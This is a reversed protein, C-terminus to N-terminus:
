NPFDLRLYAKYDDIYKNSVGNVLDTTADIFETVRSGDEKAVEAFRGFVNEVKAKEGNRALTAGTWGSTSEFATNSILNNILASSVYKIKEYGYYQGNNYTKAYRNLLPM